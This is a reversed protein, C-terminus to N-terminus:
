TSGLICRRPAGLRHRGVRRVDGADIVWVDVRAHRAFRLASASAREFSTFTLQPPEPTTSVGFSTGSGSPCTILVDGPQPHRNGSKEAVCDDM